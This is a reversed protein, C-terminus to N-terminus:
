RTGFFDEWAAATDAIRERFLSNHGAGPLSVFKKRSSGLAGYALAGQSHPITRDADGHVVLTPLALGPVRSLTDFTDPLGWLAQPAFGYLARAASQISAYPALLVLAGAPRQSALWSAPGTGVSYGVVVISDAPVKRVETLYAYARDAMDYASAEDPTGASEGYGPYDPAFVAYGLDTFFRLHHGLDALPQGNGHFYLVTGKSPTGAYAASIRGQTGTLTVAQVDPLAMKAYGAKPFMLYAELRPIFWFGGAYVAAFALALAAADAKRGWRARAARLVRLFVFSAAFAALALAVLHSYDAFLAVTREGFAWGAGVLVACWLTAGALTLLSFPLPAMRFIGAPVSILQRVVPILRGAFTYWVAGARFYREALALKEPPVFMWRGYKELFPRGLWRGLVYYNFWAGVLSGSAGALTALWFDLRGQAVLYGAPLMVIESPFPFASSEVAMLLFITWYNLGGVAASVADFVAQTM